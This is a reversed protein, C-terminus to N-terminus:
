AYKWIFGYATKCKGLCCRNIYGQNFELQREIEKCSHWKRILEGDLSYQYVIKSLEGNTMKESRRQNISGYNNNYKRDCWELNGYFNNTKCEDRHNIETLNDPNPIFAEAVLRHVLHHKAKGNKCLDVHIYGKTNKVPKLIHEKRLHGLSDIVDLRKIRGYNSVQYDNYGEINRWEEM